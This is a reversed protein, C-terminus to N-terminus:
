TACFAYFRRYEVAVQQAVPTKKEDALRKFADIQKINWFMAIILM